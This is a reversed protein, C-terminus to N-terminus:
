NQVKYKFVNRADRKTFKWQIMAREGNRKEQWQRVRAGLRKRTPIRGTLAQRSLVSLEIEAMNLWSAHKPTYHFRLRSLLRKAERHPFAEYFSSEFHTNLNDLVIHLKRAKRYRPLLAIRRMESAFDTRTRRKTVTTERWGGKPEVALFINATGNRRYEYDRKRPAYETAHVLPHTEGRLEKSKEDFCLIPEHPNYPKGYLSLLSEM